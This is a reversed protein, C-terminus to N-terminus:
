KLLRDIEAQSRGQRIYHARRQEAAKAQQEIAQARDLIPEFGRVWGSICCCQKLGSTDETERATLLGSCKHCLIM